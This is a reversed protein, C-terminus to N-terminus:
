VNPLTLDLEALRETSPPALEPIGSSLCLWRHQEQLAIDEGTLIYGAKDRGLTKALWPASESSRCDILIVVPVLPTTM